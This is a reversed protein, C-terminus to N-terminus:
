ASTTHSKRYQNPAMGIDRRFVQAFYNSSTFGSLEAIQTIELPTTSLLRCAADLRTRRIYAAPSEGTEQRFDRYFTMRSVSQTQKLVDDVSAGQTAYSEIYSIAAPMDSLQSPVAGTSGQPILSLGKVAQLKTEIKKGRLLALTTKLAEAGIREAPMHISTLHPFCELSEDLEDGGIVQIDEPVSLEYHNCVRLLYAASHTSPALIGIPKPLGKLWAGVLELSEGEPMSLLEEIHIDRYFSHPKESLTQLHEQFLDIHNQASNETGIFFLAFHNLGNSVFHDLSVSISESSYSGVFVEILNFPLGNMAVVPTGPLAKRIRELLPIDGCFVVLADPKWDVLSDIGEKVLADMFYRRVLLHPYVTARRFLGAMLRYGMFSSHDVILGIRHSYKRDKQKLKM